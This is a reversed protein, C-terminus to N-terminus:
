KECVHQKISWYIFLHIFLNTDYCLVWVNCLWQLASLAYQQSYFSRFSFIPLAISFFFSDWLFIHLGINITSSIFIYFLFAFLKSKNQYFRLKFHIEYISPSRFLKNREVPTHLNWACHFYVFDILVNVTSCMKLIIIKKRKKGM